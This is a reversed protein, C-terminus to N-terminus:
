CSLNTEETYSRERGHNDTKSHLDISLAIFLAELYGLTVVVRRMSKLSYWCHITEISVIAAGSWPLPSGLPVAPSTLSLCCLRYRPVSLPNLTFTQSSLPRSRTPLFLLCVLYLRFFAVSLSHPSFLIRTAVVTRVQPRKSIGESPKTFSPAFHYSNSLQVPFEGGAMFQRLTLLRSLRSNWIWFLYPFCASYLLPAPVPVINGSFM